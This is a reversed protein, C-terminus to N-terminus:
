RNAARGRSRSSPTGSPAPQGPDEADAPVEGEEEDLPMVEICQANFDDWTLVTKGHRTSASWGLYRFAVMAARNELDMIPFGFPQVEFRAFDRQDAVVTYPDQGDLEVRLEFIMSPM